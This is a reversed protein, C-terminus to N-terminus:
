CLTGRQMLIVPKNNKSFKRSIVLIYHIILMFFEPMWSATSVNFSLMVRNVSSRDSNMDVNASYRFLSGDIRGQKRVDIHIKDEPVTIFGKPLNITPSKSGFFRVVFPTPNFASGLAVPSIFRTSPVLFRFMKCSVISNEIYGRNNQHLILISQEVHFYSTIVQILHLLLRHM